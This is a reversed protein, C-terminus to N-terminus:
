NSLVNSIRAEVSQGVANRKSLRVMHAVFVDWEGAVNGRDNVGLDFWIELFSL